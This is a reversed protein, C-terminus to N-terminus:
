EDSLPGVNNPHRYIENGLGPKKERDRGGQRNKKTGPSLHESGLLVMSVKIEVPFPNPRPTLVRTECKRGKTKKLLSM